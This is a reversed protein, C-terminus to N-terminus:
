DRRSLLRSYFLSGIGLLVFSLALTTAVQSITLPDYGVADQGLLLYAASSTASSIPYIRAFAQLAAPLTEYPVFIGTIYLTVITLAIGVFVAAQLAKVLSGIILGIGAASAIVLLLFGTAEVSPLAGGGFRAGMGFGVAAVLLAAVLSFVALGALRGLFDSVPSVPMSKLKALLGTERDRAISSALDAFGALMLSFAIMSLTVSGKALILTQGSYARLATSSVIVLLAIAWALTWLLIARIRLFCKITKGFTAAFQTM